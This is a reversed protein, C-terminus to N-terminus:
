NIRLVFRKAIHEGQLNLHLNHKPDVAKVRHVLPLLHDLFKFLQRFAADHPVRFAQTLELIPVLHYESQVGRSAGGTVVAVATNIM